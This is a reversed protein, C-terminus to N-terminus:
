RGWKESGFAGESRNERQKRRDLIKHFLGYKDRFELINGTWLKSAIMKDRVRVAGEGFTVISEPPLHKLFGYDNPRQNIIWKLERKNLRLIELERLKPILQQPTKHFSYLIVPLTKTKKWSSIGTTPQFSFTTVENKIRNYESAIQLPGRIKMGIYCHPLSGDEHVFRLYMHRTAYKYASNWSPFAYSYGPTGHVPCLENNPHRRRGMNKKVLKNRILNLFYPIKHM